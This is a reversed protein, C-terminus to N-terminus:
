YYRVPALYLPLAIILIILISITIVTTAINLKKSTRAHKAAGIMDNMQHRDRSRISYVTAVYGLCFANLFLFNFLSWAFYDKFPKMDSTPTVNQVMNVSTNINGPQPGLPQMFAQPNSFYLGQPQMFAQPNGHYPGQPQVFTIQEDQGQMGPQMKIERFFPFALIQELHEVLRSPM